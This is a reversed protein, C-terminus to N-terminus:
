RSYVRVYDVAFTAPFVTSSDVQLGYYAPMSGGVQLNLRINMPTVFDTAIWPLDKSTRERVMKGDVYFRIATPEWEVAYIHWGAPSEGPAFHHEYGSKAQDGDTSQHITSVTTGAGGVAEM